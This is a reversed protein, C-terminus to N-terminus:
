TVHSQLPEGARFRQVNAFGYALTRRWSERSLWATHPTLLVDPRGLLPHDPAPPEKQLTDLAAGALRGSTLAALLADEDVLEGRATNILYAGPRMRAFAEANM